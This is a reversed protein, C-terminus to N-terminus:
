GFFISEAPKLLSYFAKTGKIKYLGKKVEDPTPRKQLSCIARNCLIKKVFTSFTEIYEEQSLYNPIIYSPIWKLMEIAYSRASTWQRGRYLLIWFFTNM